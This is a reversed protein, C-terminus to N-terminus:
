VERSWFQSFINQQKLWGTQTIKNHYGSSIGYLFILYYLLIYTCEERSFDTMLCMASRKLSTKDKKRVKRRKRGVELCRKKKKELKRSNVTIQTHTHTHTHTIQQEKPDSFQNKKDAKNEPFCVRLLFNANVFFKPSPKWSWPRHFLPTPNSCSSAPHDHLWLFLVMLGDKPSIQCKSPGLKPCHPQAKIIWLLSENSQHWGWSLHAVSPLTVRKLQVGQGNGASTTTPGSPPLSSFQAPIGSCESCDM